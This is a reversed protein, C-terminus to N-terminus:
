RYAYDPFREDVDEARLGFEELTYRHAPKRAGSRSEAHMSAMAREADASLDTGLRDYIGGVTALPDAVFDRYDVDVFQARDHRTRAETFTTYGRAWLDLQSRGITDGVVDGVM